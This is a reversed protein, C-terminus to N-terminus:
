RIPNKDPLPMTQIFGRERCYSEPYAEVLVAFVMLFVSFGFALVVAVGFTGGLVYKLIM